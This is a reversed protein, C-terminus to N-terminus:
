LPGLSDGGSLVDSHGWLQACIAQLLDPGRDACRSGEFEGVFQRGPYRGQEFGNARLGAGICLEGGFRVLGAAGGPGQRKQPQAIRELSKFRSQALRLRMGSHGGGGLGHLAVHRGAGRRKGFGKRRSAGSM